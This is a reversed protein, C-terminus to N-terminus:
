ATTAEKSPRRQRVIAIPDWQREVHECNRNTSALTPNSPSTGGTGRTRDLSTGQWPIRKAELLALMRAPSNWYREFWPVERASLLM